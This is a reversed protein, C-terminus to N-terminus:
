YIIINKLKNKRKKYENNFVNLGVEVFLNFREPIEKETGVISKTNCNKQFNNELMKEFKGKKINPIIIDLDGKVHFKNKKSNKSSGGDSSSSLSQIEKPSSEQYETIKKNLIEKVSEDKNEACSLM